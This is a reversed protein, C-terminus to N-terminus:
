SSFDFRRTTAEDIKGPKPKAKKAKPPREMTADVGYVAKCHVVVKRAETDGLGAEVLRTHKCSRQPRRTWGPCDCSTSGDDYRLTQYLKDSSSSEFFFTTLITKGSM